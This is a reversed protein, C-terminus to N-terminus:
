CPGSELVYFYNESIARELSQQSDFSDAMFYMTSFLEPRHMPKKLDTFIRPPQPEQSETTKFIALLPRSSVSNFHFQEGRLDGDDAALVSQTSHPRM